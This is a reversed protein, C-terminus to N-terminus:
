LIHKQISYLLEDQNFPKFFYDSALFTQAQMITGTEQKATLMIVPISSTKQNNKLQSLVELGDVQPMIVDLLVLHASRGHLKEFAEPGSKATIVQYGSEELWTKMESLIGPEDDIVCITKAMAVERTNM